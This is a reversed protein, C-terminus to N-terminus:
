RAARLLAASTVKRDEDLMRAPVIAAQRLQEHYALVAEEPTIDADAVTRMLAILDLPSEALNIKRGFLAVRGGFREAQSILEFCDRTTGASGGLVGVVLDTDHGALEELAEPGNYVVKLFQPRDVELVGALSRLICDNVFSPVNDPSMRPDVNPNFVELFYKLGVLAAEKRFLSFEELSRHDHEIDNNFTISYLGIDIVNEKILEIPQGERELVASRFPRSPHSTYDAGRIAGWVDTTDNVRVARAVKGTHFVGRKNLAELNSVSVLMIDVIDQEVIRGINELFESRTYYRDKTGVPGRKVGATTVGGAMDSDKADAIIFDGRKYRGAKIRALKDAYRTM